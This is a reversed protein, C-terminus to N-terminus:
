KRCFMRGGLFILAFGCCHAWFGSGIWLGLLLFCGWALFGAVAALWLKRGRIHFLIGFGLTGIFSTILQLIGDMM